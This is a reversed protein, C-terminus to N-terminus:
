KGQFSTNDPLKFTTYAPSVGHEAYSGGPTKMEHMAAVRDGPRFEYVGEGVEHVIGAHEDGQNGTGKAGWYL